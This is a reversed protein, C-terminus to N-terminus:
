LPMMIIFLSYSFVASLSCYHLWYCKNVQVPSATFLYYSFVTYLYAGAPVSSPTFVKELIQEMNFFSLLLCLLYATIVELLTSVYHKGDSVFLVFRGSSVGKHVFLVKRQFSPFRFSILYFTIDFLLYIVYLLLLLFKIPKLTKTRQCQLMM